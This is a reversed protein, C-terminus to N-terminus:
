LNGAPQLSGSEERKREAAKWVIGFQESHEIERDTIRPNFRAGAEARVRNHRADYFGPMLRAAEAFYPKAAAVGERQLVCCGINNSFEARYPLDALGLRLYAEANEFDGRHRYYGTGLYFAAWPNKHDALAARFHAEARETHGLRYYLKGLIIEKERESYNTREAIEKLREAADYRAYIRLNDREVLDRDGSYNDAHVRYRLLPKDVHKFVAGADIMDFIYAHDCCIPTETSYRLGHKEIFDRRILVNMGLNSIGYGIMMVALLDNNRHYYDEHGRVRITRLDEDTFEIDNYVCDVDAFKEAMRLQEYLKEPRYLDDHHIFTVYEGRAYLDLAENYANVSGKSRQRFYKIRADRYASVIAPTADDSADIVILEFHPYSQALVSDMAARIHKEGNRVPLIISIPSNM